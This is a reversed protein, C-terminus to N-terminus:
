QHMYGEMQETYIVVRFTETCFTYICFKYVYCYVFTFITVIESQSYHGHLFHNNRTATHGPWDWDSLYCWPCIKLKRGLLKQHSAGFVVQIVKKHWSVLFNCWYFWPNQGTFQLFFLVLYAVFLRLKQIHQSVIM